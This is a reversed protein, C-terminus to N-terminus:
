GRVRTNKLMLSVAKILRKPQKYRKKLEVLAFKVKRIYRNSCPLHYAIEPTTKGQKDLYYILEILQQSDGTLIDRYFADLCAKDEKLIAKDDDHPDEDSKNIHQIERQYRTVKKLESKLWECPETCTDRKPCNKCTTKL